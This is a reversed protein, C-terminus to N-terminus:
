TVRDPGEVDKGRLRGAPLLEHGPKGPHHLGGPVPQDDGRGELVDADELARLVTQSDLPEPNAASAALPAIALWIAIFVVPTLMFPARAIIM